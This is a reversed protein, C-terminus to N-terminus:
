KQKMEELMKKMGADRMYFSLNPHQFLEEETLWMREVTEFDGTFPEIVEVKASFVAKCFPVETHVVYYAFWKPNQVRVQTEEYVERIAAEILSEGAEMKGGPFEVGRREHVACLWKGENQVLVLVHRPEIEFPGKDFRLDVTYGNEDTFTFMGEVGLSILHLSPVDIM